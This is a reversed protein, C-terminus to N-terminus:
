VRKVVLEKNISKGLDFLSLNTAIM